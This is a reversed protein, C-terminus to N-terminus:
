RERRRLYREIRAETEKSGEAHGTKYGWVFCFMGAFLACAAYWAVTAVHQSIM